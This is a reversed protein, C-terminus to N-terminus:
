SEKQRLKSHFINIARSHQTNKPVVTQRPSGDVYTFLLELEFREVSSNWVVSCAKKCFIPIFVRGLGFFPHFSLTGCNIRSKYWLWILSGSHIEVFKLCLPFHVEALVIRANWCSPLSIKFCKFPQLESCSCPFVFINNCTGFYM